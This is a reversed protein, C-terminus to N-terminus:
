SEGVPQKRARSGDWTELSPPLTLSVRMGWLPLEGNHIAPLGADLACYMVVGVVAAVLAVGASAAVELQLAFAM